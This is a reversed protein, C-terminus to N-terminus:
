SRWLYYRTLVVVFKIASYYHVVATNNIAEIFNHRSDILDYRKMLNVGDFYYHKM